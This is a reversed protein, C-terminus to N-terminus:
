RVVQGCTPCIKPKGYYARFQDTTGNFYDHDISDVKYQWIAWFPYFGTDPHVNGGNWEAVWLGYDAEAIKRIGLNHLDSSSCYLLPKVGTRSYFTDLFAKAADYMYRSEGELDLAFVSNYLRDGIASIFYEAEKIPSNKDFRAFHYFGTLKSTKDSFKSKTYNEFQKIMKENTYNIGETAKIILFDKDEFGTEDQWGSVDAGNLYSM